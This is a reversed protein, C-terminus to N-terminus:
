EIIFKKSATQDGAVVTIMYMGKSLESVWQDFDFTGPQLEGYNKHIITRGTLDTVMMSTNSPKEITIRLTAGDSAPNPYIEMLENSNTEALGVYGYAFQNREEYTFPQGTIIADGDSLIGYYGTGDGCCLGNGGADYMVFEYCGLESVNLPQNITTGGNAYPGGSQVVEGASNLLEWTTEEPANNLLIFLTVNTGNVNPSEEFSFVASNNQPYDDDNGNTASIHVTLTNQEAIPFSLMGPDVEARQLFSLNGAWEVTHIVEGNVMFEVTASTLADSGFNSITAIPHMTGSCNVAITNDISKVTADNSYVPVIPDLSSNAAQHIHKSAVDQVFGVASIENIDYVNALEWATEIIVYDNAEFDPLSTGNKSPLLAKMVNYFDKEGNTGPATTFHIEEEIVAIHAVLSGSVASEAKILMTVYVSDQDDSLRHQMTITFPAPNAAYNNIMSQSVQQPVGHFYDGNMYVHPVSNISYYTKRSNNDTPNHHYMPDNGPAPWNMHYKISTIKDTNAHLLADFAPNQSACPGCTSSTFGEALLMRQVQAFTILPLFSISLFAFSLLIKKM